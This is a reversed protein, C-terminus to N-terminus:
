KNNYKKGNIIVIGKANASVRQGALNYAASAKVSNDVNSIGTTTNGFSFVLSKANGVTEGAIYAKNQPITTGTFLSFKPAEATSGSANLVWASRAEVTASETATSSFINSIEVPTEASEVFKVTGTGNVVVGAGAPIVEGAEIPSLTITGAGDTINKASAYYATVDEPVEAPFDVAMSAWGNTPIALNLVRNALYVTVSELRHTGAPTFTVEEALGTWTPSPTSDDYSSCDPSVTMGNKWDGGAKNLVIKCIKRGEPAIISLTNKNYLRVYTEDFRIATGDNKAFKMTIGDFTLTHSDVTPQAYANTGSPTLNFTTYGLKASNYEIGKTIVDDNGGTDDGKPTGNIIIESIGCGKSSSAGPCSITLTGDVPAIQLPTCKTLNTSSPSYTTLVTTGQSVSIKGQTTDPGGYKRAIIVINILKYDSFDISPSTIKKDSSVLQYGGTASYNPNGSITWGENNANSFSALVVEDAAWMGMSCLFTCLLLLTKKMKQIFKYTYNIIHERANIAGQQQPGKKNEHVFNCM